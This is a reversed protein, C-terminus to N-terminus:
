SFSFLDCGFYNHIQCVLRVDYRIFVEHVPSVSQVYRVALITTGMNVEQSANAAIIHLTVVQLFVNSVLMTIISRMMRMRHVQM